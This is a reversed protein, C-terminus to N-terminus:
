IDSAERQTMFDREHAQLYEGDFRQDGASVVTWIREPTSTKKGFYIQKGVVAQAEPLWAISRTVGNETPSEYTCQRYFTSKSMTSGISLKGRSILELRSSAPLFV